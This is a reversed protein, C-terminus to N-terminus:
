QKSGREENGVIGMIDNVANMTAKYNYDSALWILQTGLYFAAFLSIITTILITVHKKEEM